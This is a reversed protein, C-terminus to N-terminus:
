NQKLKSMFHAVQPYDYKLTNAIQAATQGNNDLAHIDVGVESVLWKVLHYCGNEVALHLCTEGSSDSKKAKRIADVGHCTRSLHRLQELQGNQSYGLAECELQQRYKFDIIPDDCSSADSSFGIERIVHAVNRDLEAGMSATIGRKELAEILTKVQDQKVGAFSEEQHLIDTSHLLVAAQRSAIVKKRTRTVMERMFGKVASDVNSKELWHCLLPGDMLSQNCGQGKFPTMSHIADGMIVVNAEAVADNKCHIANLIELPDRDMLPTGWVTELPTSHLMREIPEHWGKTRRLTENWLGESGTKSLTVADEYNLPFSLQWMYRRTRQVTTSQDNMAIDYRELDDIRSGEFPMTFLRHNGDLTYFGREDLLPHFFNETIGLIIMIGTYSLTTPDKQEGLSSCSGVDADSNHHKRKHSRCTSPLRDREAGAGGNSSSALLSKIVNSNVGDAGILFDVRDTTGDQFHLELCPSPPHKKLEQQPSEKEEQDYLLLHKGWLVRVHGRGQDRELLADLMIKRLVQRPVRLNGRQGFGRRSDEGHFANGYYGLIKGKCDFVYHARSPCDNRALDELLGLTNLPAQVTHSPNYTLTLGYGDKRAAFDSDREYLTISTFGAQQLSLACSLGAPGTGIIAIKTSTKSLRERKQKIFM